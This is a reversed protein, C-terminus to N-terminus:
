LPEIGLFCEKHSVSGSRANVQPNFGRVYLVSPTFTTCTIEDGLKVDQSFKFFAMYENLPDGGSIKVPYKGSTPQYNCIYCKVGTAVSSLSPAASGYDDVTNATNSKRSISCTMTMLREISM